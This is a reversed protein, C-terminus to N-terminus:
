QKSPEEPQENNRVETTLWKKELRLMSQRIRNHEDILLLKELFNHCMAPRNIEEYSVNESDDEFNAM